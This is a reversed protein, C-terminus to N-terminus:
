VVAIHPHYTVAVYRKRGLCKGCEFVAMKQGESPLEQGEPIYARVKRSASVQIAVPKLCFIWAFLERERRQRTGTARGIVVANGSAISRRARRYLAGFRTLAFVFFALVAAFPLSAHTSSRALEAWYDSCQKRIEETAANGRCAGPINGWGAIAARVDVWGSLLPPTYVQIQEAAVSRSPPQSLTGLAVIGVVLVVASPIVLKPLYRLWPARAFANLVV